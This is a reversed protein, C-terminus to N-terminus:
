IDYITVCSRGLGVWRDQPKVTQVSIQIPPTSSGEPPFCLQQIKANDGAFCAEFLEDYATTLHKPVWFQGYGPSPYAYRSSAEPAPEPLQPQAPGVNTKQDSYLIENATQANHAVLLQELECLYQMIGNLEHLIKSHDQLAVARAKKSQITKVEQLLAAYCGKWYTTRSAMDLIPESPQVSQETTLIHKSLGTRAVRVWDLLSLSSTPSYSLHQKIIVNLNTGLAALLSIVDDHRAIATEAPSHVSNM